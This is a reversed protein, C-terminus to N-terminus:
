GKKPESQGNSVSAGQTANQLIKYGAWTSSIGSKYGLQVVTWKSGYEPLHVSEKASVIDRAVAPLADVKVLHDNM